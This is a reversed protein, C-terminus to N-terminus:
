GMLGMCPLRSPAAELHTQRAKPSRPTSQPKQTHKPAEPQATASEAAAGGINHNPNANDNVEAAPETAEPATSTSSEPCQEPFLPEHVDFGFLYCAESCDPAVTIM